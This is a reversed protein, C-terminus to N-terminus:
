EPIIHKITKIIKLQERFGFVIFFLYITFSFKACLINFCRNQNLAYKENKMSQYWMVNSIRKMYIHFPFIFLRLYNLLQLFNIRFVMFCPVNLEVFITYYTSINVSIRPNGTLQFSTWMIPPLYIVHCSNWWERPSFM